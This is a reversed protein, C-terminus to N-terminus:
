SLKPPAPNRATTGSPPDRPRVPLFPADFATSFDYVDDFDDCRDEDSQAFAGVEILRFVIEGIDRTRRVGWTDLVLRTLPGFEELACARLGDCLQSASVHIAERREGRGRQSRQIHDLADRIFYYAASAFRSDRKLCDEVADDFIPRTM